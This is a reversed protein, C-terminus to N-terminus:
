EQPLRGDARLRRLLQKAIREADVLQGREIEVASEVLAGELEKSPASRRAAEAVVALRTGSSAAAAYNSMADGPPPLDLEHGCQPCNPIKNQLNHLREM